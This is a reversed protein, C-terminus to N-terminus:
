PWNPTITGRVLTIAADATTQQNDHTFSVLATADYGQGTYLYPIIGDTNATFAGDGDMDLPTSVSDKVANIKTIANAATGTQGNHTFTTLESASAGQNTYLYLLIADRNPEFTGSADLDLTFDQPVSASDSIHQKSINGAADTVIVCRGNTNHATGVIEGPTYDSWGSGSTDTGVTCSGTAVNDKTRATIPTATDAARVRYERTNGTGIRTTTLIPATRDLTIEFGASTTQSPASGSFSGPLHAAVFCKTGDAPTLAANVRDSSFGSRYNSNLLINITVEHTTRQTSSIIAVGASNKWDSHIDSHWGDEKFRDGWRAGDAPIAGGEDCPNNKYMISLQDEDGGQFDNGGYPRDGTVTFSLNTNKTVNDGTSSGSDSSAKLAVVLPTNSTQSAYIDSGSEHPTPENRIIDASATPTNQQPTLPEDSVMDPTYEAAQAAAVSIFVATAIVVLAFLHITVRVRM